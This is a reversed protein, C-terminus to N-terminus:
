GHINCKLIRLHELCVGFGLGKGWFDVKANIELLVDHQPVLQGWLRGYSQLLCLDVDINM